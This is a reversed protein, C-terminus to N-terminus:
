RAAIYWSAELLFFFCIGIPGGSNMSLAWRSRCSRSVPSNAGYASSSATSGAVAARASRLRVKPAARGSHPM